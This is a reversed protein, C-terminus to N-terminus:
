LDNKLVIRSRSKGAELPALAENARSMPFEETVPRVGHRACFELMKAVTGPAGSPSGGLSRQGAILPFVPIALPEPVVGVMHLHGKPALANLYQQWGLSATVTSLIFNFTGAVKTLAEASHTDVVRHAGAMCSGSNWGLGVPQRLSVLKASRGVASVTGIAEHGPVLPFRSLQWENHLMSFDSHCIGCYQVEIEVQEDGLPGPDYTFPQLKAGAASAALARIESMRNPHPESPCSESTLKSIHLVYGSQTNSSYVGSERRFGM